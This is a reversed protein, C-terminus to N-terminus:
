AQPETHLCGMESKTKRKGQWRRNGGAHNDKGSFGAKEPAVQFLVTETKDNKGGAINGAENARPGVISMKRTALIDITSGEWGM